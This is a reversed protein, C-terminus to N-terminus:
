KWKSGRKIHTTCSETCLVEAKSYYLYAEALSIESQISNKFSELYVISDSSLASINKKYSDIFVNLYFEAHELQAIFLLAHVKAVNKIHNQLSHPDIYEFLIKSSIDDINDPTNSFIKKSHEAPLIQSLLNWKGVPNKSEQNWHSNLMTDTSCNFTSTPGMDLVVLQKTDTKWYFEIDYGSIGINHLRAITAGIKKIINAGNDFFNNIIQAITSLNEVKEMVLIEGLKPSQGYMYIKPIIIDSDDICQVAKLFANYQLNFSVYNHASKSCKAIVSELLSENYVTYVYSNSGSGIKNQLTIKKPSRSVVDYFEVFM